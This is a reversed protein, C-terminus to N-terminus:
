SRIFDVISSGLFIMIQGILILTIFNLDKSAIGVDIVSQTMFPLIIQLVLGSIIGLIVQFFLKRHKSIHRFVYVVDLKDKQQDNENLFTATPELLLAVGAQDSRKATWHKEFEKRPIKRLGAAPDAIYAMVNTVKIVVVFHKQDWHIICPLTVKKLLAEYDIKVALTRLGIAEASESISLLSVGFRQIQCKQRLYQLSYSRGYYKAIMRLCTPGCDVTDLQKYLPFRM